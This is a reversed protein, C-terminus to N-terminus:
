VGLKRGMGMCAAVGGRVLEDAARQTMGAFRHAVEACPAHWDSLYAAM